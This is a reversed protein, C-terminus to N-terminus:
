TRPYASVLRPAADVYDYHWATIVTATRNNLTLQMSVEGTRGLQGLDRVRTVPSTLAQTMFVKWLLQADVDGFVRRWHEGHGEEGMIWDWKPAPAYADRVRPLSKGIEPWTM